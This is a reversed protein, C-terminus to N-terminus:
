FGCDFTGDRDQGAAQWEAPTRLNGWIMNASGSLCYHNRYFINRPEREAGSTLGSVGRTMTIFNDHVRLGSTVYPGHPGSGRSEQFGVIGQDNNKIVNNCIHVNSSAAIFIGAGSLWGGLRGNEAIVNNSIRAGYSTEEMVGRHTNFSIVNSDVVSGINDTDFWVGVGFNHHVYNSLVAANETKVLKMGSAEGVPTDPNVRASSNNHIENNQIVVSSATYASVGVWANDHVASNLLRGRDGLVVPNGANHDIECDEITFDSDRPGLTFIGRGQNDPVFHAFRIGSVLVGRTGMAKLAAKKKGGGDWVVKGEGYFRNGSKSVVPGDTYVGPSLLFSTNAAHGNVAAQLGGPWVRVSAAPAQLERLIRGAPVAPFAPASVPIAECDSQNSSRPAGLVNGARRSFHFRELEKDQLASEHTRVAGAIQELTANAPTAWSAVTWCLGVIAGRGAAGVMMGRRM